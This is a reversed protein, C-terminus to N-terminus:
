SLAFVDHIYANRYEDDKRRSDKVCTGYLHANNLIYYMDGQYSREVSENRWFLLGGALIRHNNWQRTYQSQITDDYFDFDDQVCEELRILSIETVNPCVVDFDTNAHKYVLFFDAFVDINRHYGLTISKERNELWDDPDEVINYLYRQPYTMGYKLSCYDPLITLTDKHTPSFKVHGVVIKERSDDNERWGDDEDYSALVDLTAHEEPLNGLIMVEGSYGDNKVKGTIAGIFSPKEFLSTYHNYTNYANVNATMMVDGIRLESSGASGRDDMRQYAGALFIHAAANSYDIKVSDMARKAAWENLGLDAYIVSQDLGHVAIDKDLLFRSRYVAQNDNLEMARNLHELAEGAKNHDYLIVSQYLHPTPDHPDLWSAYELVDMAKDANGLQYLMKGFYSVFMSRQPDLLSARSIAAVAGDVNGKRMLAIARGMYSEGNGPSLDLSREFAALAEDTKGEGLCIFGYLSTIASDTPALERARLITQRAEEVFGQGFYLRALIVLADINEPDSNLAHQVAEVADDLRFYAQEVLSTVLWAPCSGPDAGVAKRAALRAKDKEGLLFYSLANMSLLETNLPWRKLFEESMDRAHNFEKVAVLIRVMEVAIPTYEPYSDLGSELEALAQEVDGERWYTRSNRFFWERSGRKVVSKDSADPSTIDEDWKAVFSPIVVTWQVADRPAILQTKVLPKGSRAIVQDHPGLRMTQGENWAVVTGSLVSITVMDEPEVRVELETGRIGATVSPTDIDLSVDRSTNRLWMRGRELAYVSRELVGGLSQSVNRVDGNDKGSGAKRIIFLTNRALQVMSEDAMLVAAWGRPGTKLRDGPHIPQDHFVPSWEVADERLISVQGRFDIIWGSEIQAPRAVGPWGGCVLLCIWTLRIYKRIEVWLM